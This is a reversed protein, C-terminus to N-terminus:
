VSLLPLHVAFHDDTRDITISRRTALRYREQLSSLGVGASPRDLPRPRRRNEVTLAGGALTIKVVLPDARDLENHKVANEVLLQVALPPVVHRELAGEPVDREIRLADDGFRVRLLATYDDVFRTEESLLVLHRDRQSLIYRYVRALLDNFRRAREPDAGILYSLTNLANFLFHPDIQAHLASLESLAAARELREARVLDAEREKILFVTEYVHTVFMVCIVNALTVTRIAPWDIAPFAALRYWAALMAVTVPVTGFVTGAVLALLKRVPHEFWGTHERQRFLLWRNGHWIAAALAVFWALGAWYTLTDPGHPGFLGAIHPISIGFGPIGIARVLRDDLTERAM